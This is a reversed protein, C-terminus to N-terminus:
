RATAAPQAEYLEVSVEGVRLHLRGPLGAASTVEPQKRLWGSPGVVVNVVAEAGFRWRAADHQRALWEAQFLTYRAAALGSLRGYEEPSLLRTFPEPEQNPHPMAVARQAGASTVLLLLAEGRPPTLRRQLEAESATELPQASLWMPALQRVVHAGAVLGAKEAVSGPQVAHVTLVGDERTVSFGLPEVVVPDAALVGWVVLASVSM